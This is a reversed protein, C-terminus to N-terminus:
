YAGSLKTLWVPVGQHILMMHLSILGNMQTKLTKKFCLFGTDIIEEIKLRKRFGSYM